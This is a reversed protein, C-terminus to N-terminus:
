DRVLQLEVLKEATATNLHVRGAIRQEAGENTARARLKSERHQELAKWGGLLGVGGGIGVLVFWWLGPAGIVWLGVCVALGDTQGVQEKCKEYLELGFPDPERQDLTPTYLASFANGVVVAYGALLALAGWKPDHGTGAAIIAIAIPVSILLLLGLL